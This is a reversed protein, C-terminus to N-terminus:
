SLQNLREDSRSLVILRKENLMPEAWDVNGHNLTFKRTGDKDIAVILQGTNLFFHKSVSDYALAETRQSNSGPEADYLMTATPTPNKDLRYFKKRMDYVYLEGDVKLPASYCGHYDKTVHWDNILAGTNLDLQYVHGNYSSVYLEGDDVMGFKAPRYGPVEFEWLPITPPGEAHSLRSAAILLILSATFVGRPPQSNM